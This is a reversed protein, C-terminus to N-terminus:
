MVNIIILCYMFYNIVYTMKNLDDRRPVQMSNYVLFSSLLVSLTFIQSDGRSSAKVADVGETDFLIVTVEEGSKLTHQFPTDWMWIGMTESDMTHGLRFHPVEHGTSPILQNLLYSKGTRCPGAIAIVSIPNTIKELIEKAEPIIVLSDRKTSTIKRYTNSERDWECDNPLCLPIARGCAPSINNDLTCYHLIPKLIHRKICATTTGIYPHGLNDMLM